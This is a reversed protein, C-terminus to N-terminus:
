KQRKVNFRRDHWDSGVINRCNRRVSPLMIMPFLVDLYRCQNLGRTFVRSGLTSVCFHTGGTGCHSVCKWSIVSRRGSLPVGCWTVVKVCKINTSSWMTVSDSHNDSYTTELLSRGIVDMWIVMVRLLDSLNRLSMRTSRYHCQAKLLIWRMSPEEEVCLTGSRRWCWVM